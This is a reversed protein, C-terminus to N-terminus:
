PELKAPDLVVHRIRERKWTYTIHIKKDRTQIVAPYSYEGPSDELTFVTKWEKGDRSVAVSLPTRVDDIETPNYVLIARGDALVTTDIGSDPNPLSTPALPEWHKGDQSHSQLLKGQTGRCLMLLRGDPFRMLAPQIARVTKGDNLPPTLLWSEGGDQTLELHVRWGDHETSSPCLLTGDKLALPKNKIPGLVGDPLRKAESWTAGQDQSTRLMGWWQRPNPGVKYFLMLGRKPDTHLVPNWCPFRTGDAQVGNAAEVPVSWKGGQHRSVWIAVDKKGEDSGGFWAAIVGNKTEAITSAHCSPFSATEYLFEKTIQAEGEALALTQPLTLLILATIGIWYGHM